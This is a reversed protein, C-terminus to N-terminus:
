MDSYGAREALACPTAEPIGSCVSRSQCVPLAAGDRYLRAHPRPPCAPLSHRLGTPVDGVVGWHKRLTSARIGHRGDPLLGRQGAGGRAAGARASLLRDM